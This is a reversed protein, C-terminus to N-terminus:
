VAKRSKLAAVVEHNLGSEAPIEEATLAGAEIADLCAVFWLRLQLGPQKPPSEFRAAQERMSEM